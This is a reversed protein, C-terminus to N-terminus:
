FPKTYGVRLVLERTAGQLPAHGSNYPQFYLFRDDFLNFVGIGAELGKTGLDPYSAYLNVLTTTGANALTGGGMGDGPLMYGYQGTMMVVSPSVRLNEWARWVGHLTLKHQPMGLLANPHQDVAYLPVQNDGHATYYSYNADFYGWKYRLKYDAEVGATGTHDFNTYGQSGDPAVFYVIPQNIRMYYANLTVFNHADISYGAEAEGIYTREPQVPQTPSPPLNIDEFSPARFASSFLLKFHWPDLVKTLAVRPVFSNGIQSHHEFRAGVTVNVIPNNWLGQAFVAENTYQIANSTGFQAQTTNPVAPENLYAHDWYAEAGTLLNLGPQLQDTVIVSATAKEATKDYFVPSMQDVVQWSSQQQYQLKPTVVLGEQIVHDYRLEGYTGKFYQSEGRMENQALGDEEDARYGDYIFRASWEDYQAALNLFVPRLTHDQLSYTGGYFDTFTADSRVGYGYYLSGSVKVPGISDGVALSLINYGFANRMRGSSFYIAAGKLQDAGRTIVNIVALEAYGGYIASGPGRIIEIHDIQDIPYHFAMENDSYLRENMPQGDILLLVKGEHGWNGRVGVDTVGEVDVGLSFGPVLLLVDELDRAGSDMIEERTVVTIIGPTERYTQPVKTAVDVDTKLLDDLSVETIDHVATDQAAAPAAGVLLCVFVRAIARM